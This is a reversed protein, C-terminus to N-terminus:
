SIVFTGRTGYAPCVWNGPKATTGVATGTTDVKGVELCRGQQDTGETISFAFASGGQAWTGSDDVSVTISYTNNSAISMSGTFDGDETWTYTGPVIRGATRPRIGARALAGTHEGGAPAGKTIYFTGSSGFGPCAWDGPKAAFSIAKGTGTVHGAFVCDGSADNGGIISLGATKGAQAWTGSDGGDFTSTYTNNSAFTITGGDLGDIFWNYTGPKLPTADSLAEPVSRKMADNSQAGALGAGVCIVGALCVTAGAATVASWRELKRM